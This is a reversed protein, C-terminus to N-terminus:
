LGEFLSKGAKHFFSLIQLVWIPYKFEGCDGHEPIFLSQSAGKIM